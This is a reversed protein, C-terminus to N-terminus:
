VEEPQVGFQRYFTWFSTRVVAYILAGTLGPTRPTGGSRACNRPPSGSGPEILWSSGNM